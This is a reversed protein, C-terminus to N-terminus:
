GDPSFAAAAIAQSHGKLLAPEALTRADWVRVVRDHAHLLRRGDPSYALAGPWGLGRMRARPKGEADCLWLECSGGEPYTGETTLVAVEEGDPRFAAALAVRAFGDGLRSLVAGTATDHVEGFTVGARGLFFRSGDPSFAACQPFRHVNFARALPSQRV